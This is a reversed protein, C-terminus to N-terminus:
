PPVDPGGTQMSAAQVMGHWAMRLSWDVVQLSFLDIVVTLQDIGIEFCRTTHQFRELKAV